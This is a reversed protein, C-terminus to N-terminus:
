VELVLPEQLKQHEVAVFMNVASKNQEMALLLFVLSRFFLISFHCICGVDIPTFPRPHHPPVLWAKISNKLTTVPFECGCHDIFLSHAVVIFLSVLTSNVQEPTKVRKVTKKHM